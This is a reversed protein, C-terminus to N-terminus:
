VEDAVVLSFPCPVVPAFFAVLGSRALKYPNFLYLLSVPEVPRRQLAFELPHCKARAIAVLAPLDFSKRLRWPIQGTAM